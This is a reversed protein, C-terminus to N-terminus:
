ELTLLKKTSLSRPYQFSVFQTPSKSTIELGKRWDESNMPVLSEWVPKTQPNAMLHRHELAKVTTPDVIANCVHTLHHISIHSANKDEMANLMQNQHYQAKSIESRTMCCKAVPIDVTDEEEDDFPMVHPQDTPVRPPPSHATTHVSQHQPIKHVRPLTQTEQQPLRPLKTPTQSTSKEQPHHEQANPTFINVLTQLADLKNQM